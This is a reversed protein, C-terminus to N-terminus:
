AYININRFIQIVKFLINRESVAFCLFFILQCVCTRCDTFFCGTKQVEFHSVFQCDFFVVPFILHFDSDDCLIIGSM